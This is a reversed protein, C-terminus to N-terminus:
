PPPISCARDSSPAIKALLTKTRVFGSTLPKIAGSVGDSNGHPVCFLVAEFSYSRPAIKPQKEAQAARFFRHRIM